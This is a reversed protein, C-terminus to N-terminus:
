FDPIPDPVLFRGLLVAYDLYAILLSLESVFRSYNFLSYNSVFLFSASELSDEAIEFFLRLDYLEVM